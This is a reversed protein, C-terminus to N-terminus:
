RGCLLTVVEGRGIDFGTIGLTDFNAISARRMGLAIMFGTAFFDIVTGGFLTVASCFAM